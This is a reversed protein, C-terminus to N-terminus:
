AANVAAVKLSNGLGVGFYEPTDALLQPHSTTATPALGFLMHCEGDSTLRVFRTRTNFAASPTTTTFSVAQTTIAPEQGVPIINGDADVALKEYETIYLISM